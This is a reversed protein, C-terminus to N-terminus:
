RLEVCTSGHSYVFAKVALEFPIKYTQYRKQLLQGVMYQLYVSKNIASDPGSKLISSEQM